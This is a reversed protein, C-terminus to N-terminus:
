FEPSLGSYDFNYINFRIGVSEDTSNYFAGISYARRNVDLAYTVNSNTGDNLNFINDYSFLLPGYLQQKLSLKIRPDKDISDFKFPSEGGKIVYSYKTSIQTYDLFKKKFSGLTLVPGTDFKLASQSSGEDYLFLGSQLGTSWRLSQNIVKPTFRYSKDIARDLSTKKWIPFQYNYQAVFSNRFADTFERADLRESKFYGVDYILALSSKKDNILWSKKNSVNFGSAFHLEETAFDKIVKERYTGYFQFDLFNTFLSKNEESYIDTSNLDIKGSSLSSSYNEEEFGIFAKSDANKILNFESDEEPNLNIRKTLTFKSRLAQDFRESNLSNLQSKSEIDWNHVKGKLNVDIGFYDSFDIDTEVKKSLISSNKRTFANTKGKLARQILFYPQLQFSYDKFIKRPYTGRFLYYGDKDKFDAGFGWKTLPDRDFFSRRGIPISVKDDLVLWSNRSILRLKNDIIESSFNKSLFVFQPKNYLDNTFFIEKSKLTKSDYILKETKYRWRRISPINFDAKTINFNNDDEFQNVFGITATNVYKPQEVGNIIEQEILDRNNNDLELKFDKAFTDSNLLGYVNDIYGTDKRLDYSLKSAEFYQEGKEFIVNGVVTLLKNQLDYKILDGRLIADSLYIIANGKAFFVGEERYQIDSDIEVYYKNELDKQEFALLEFLNKGEVKLDKVVENKSLDTGNLIRKRYNINNSPLHNTKVNLEILKNKNVDKAFIKNPFFILFEFIVLGQFYILFNRLQLKKM